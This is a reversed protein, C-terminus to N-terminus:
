LISPIRNMANEKESDVIDAYVMTSQISSHGLLKQVTFIPTGYSLQLVAFTHRSSHYTIKKDVGASECWKQLKKTINANYDPLNFVKENKLGREGLLNVVQEPVLLYNDDDTKKQTYEIYIKGDREKIEDWKLKYVDSWRLGTLCSFIFARKLETDKCDTASLLKVEDLTLYIVKPKKAKLSKIKQLPNESIIKDDM